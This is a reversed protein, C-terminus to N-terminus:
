SNRLGRVLAGGANRVQKLITRLKEMSAQSHISRLVASARAEDLVVAIAPVVFENVGYVRDRSVDSCAPIVATAFDGFLERTYEVADRINEEKATTPTSWNYPPTWELAPTLGDIHTMVAILPPPKHQPNQEAHKALEQVLKVDADRAPSTAKLVLLVLDAADCAARISKRQAASAGAEAYGPTDLITVKDDFNLLSLRYRQVDRTAPLTDTTAQNEGLLANILSSKGAKAQGVVAITVQVPEVAAFESDATLSGVLLRHQPDTKALQGLAARYRASGGRLRGSNMEILYFGTQKVFFVYFAALLNEQLMKSAPDLIVKGTLYRGISLPNMYLSVLWSLNKVGDIWKPAHGLTRWHGVTLMNSAPVYDNVWTELDEVALSAAALLEPVTLASLPDAANPHYHRAIVESLETAAQLYFQPDILLAPDISGIQEQRSKILEMAQEDRPTWHTRATIEAPPLLAAQPSRRSILWAIGWCLPLFWWAWLLWGTKWMSWVGFGSLILIPLTLLGALLLGRKNNM